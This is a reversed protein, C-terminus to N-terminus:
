QSDSGNILVVRDHHSNLRGNCQGRHLDILLFQQRVATEAVLIVQHHLYLNTSKKSKSQVKREGM